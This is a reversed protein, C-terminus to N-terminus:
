REMFLRLGLGLGGKLRQRAVRRLEILAVLRGAAQEDDVV